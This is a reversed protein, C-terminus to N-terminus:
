VILNVLGDTSLDFTVPQTTPNITADFQTCCFLKSTADSGTNRFVVMYLVNTNTLSAFVIDDCLFKTVGSSSSLTKTTLAVRAYSGGTLEGTLDTVYVHSDQNFTYTNKLLLASFADADWELEKNAFAASASTYIQPTAIKIM